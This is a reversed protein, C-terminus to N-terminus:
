DLMTILNRKMEEQKFNFMIEQSKKRLGLSDEMSEKTEEKDSENMDLSKKPRISGVTSISKWFREAVVLSAKQLVADAESNRGLERYLSSITNYLALVSPHSSEMVKLRIELAKKMCKLGERKRKFNIHVNGMSEYIRASNPHVKGFTNFSLDIAKTYCCLSDGDNGMSLFVLALDEYINGLIEKNPLVKRLHINLAMNYYKMSLEYKRSSRYLSAIRMYSRVVDDHKDGLKAIKIEFAKKYNELAEQDKGKEYYIDGFDDYVGVMELSDKENTKSKINFATHLAGMAEEYKDLKRYTKCIERYAESIFLEANESALGSSIELMKEFCTLAQDYNELLTYLSGFDRWVTAAICEGETSRDSCLNLAKQLYETAKTYRAQKAYMMSMARYLFAFDKNEKGVRSTMHKKIKKYINLTSEYDCGRLEAEAQNVLKQLSKDNNIIRELNGTTLYNM